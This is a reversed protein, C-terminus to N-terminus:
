FILLKTTPTSALLHHVSTKIIREWTPWEKL